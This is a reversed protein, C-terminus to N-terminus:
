VYGYLGRVSVEGSFINEVEGNEDQVLLEGLQNIGIAKRIVEGERRILKVERGINILHKNYEEMFSSLDQEKLFIEYRKMFEEAFDAVFRARDVKKGTEIYVSSAMSSISEDFDSRNLNFGIGPVIYHIDDMDASMETLIGCIKKGHIVLDNPWKIQYEEECHKELAKVGALAAILTLMSACEPPLDPKLLFSFFVDQGKPSIWNRGRRGKGATQQDAVYLSRDPAGANYARKAEENTSDIVSFVKLEGTVVGPAMQRGIEEVSLIDPRTVLRYGKRTMSEIEYGDERLANIYKWIATRSVGLEDSINQGSVFEDQESLFQLIKQKM